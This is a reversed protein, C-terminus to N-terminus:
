NDMVFDCWRIKFYVAQNRTLLFLRQNSVCVTHKPQAYLWQRMDKYSDNSALFPSPHNIEVVIDFCFGCFMWKIPTHNIPRSYRAVARYILCLVSFGVAIQYKHIALNVLTLLAFAVSSIFILDVNVFRRFGINHNHAWNIM